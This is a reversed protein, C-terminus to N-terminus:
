RGEVAMAPGAQREAEDIEGDADVDAFLGSAAEVVDAAAESVPDHPGPTVDVGEEVGLSEATVWDPEGLELVWQASHLDVGTASTLQIRWVDLPLTATGGDVGDALVYTDAAPALTLGCWSGEPLPIEVADDVDQLAIPTGETGDCDVPLLTGDGLTIETFQLGEGPAARLRATGPNGVYTGHDPIRVTCASSGLLLVLPVLRNM